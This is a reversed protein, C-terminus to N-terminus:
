AKRSAVNLPLTKIKQLRCVAFSKLSQLTAVLWFKHDNQSLMNRVSVSFVCQDTHAHDTDISLQVLRVDRFIHSFHLFLSFHMALVTYGACSLVASDVGSTIMVKVVLIVTATTTNPSM